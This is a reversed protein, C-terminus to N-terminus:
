DAINKDIDRLIGYCDDSLARLPEFNYRGGTFDLIRIYDGDLEYYAMDFGLKKGLRSIFPESFLELKNGCKYLWWKDDILKWCKEFSGIKTLM